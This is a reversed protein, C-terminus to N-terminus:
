GSCSVPSIVCDELSSGEVLGGVTGASQDNVVDLERVLSKVLTPHVKFYLRCCDRLDVEGNVTLIVGTM